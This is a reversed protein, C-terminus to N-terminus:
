SSGELWDGDTENKKGGILMRGSTSAVSIRARGGILDDYYM